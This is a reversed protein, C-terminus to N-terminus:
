FVLCHHLLTHATITLFYLAVLTRILVFAVVIAVVVIIYSLAGAKHKHSIDQHLHALISIVIIFVIGLFPYNQQLPFPM